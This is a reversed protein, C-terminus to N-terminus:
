NEYQRFDPVDGSVEHLYDDLDELTAQTELGVTEIASSSAELRKLRENVEQLLAYITPIDSM